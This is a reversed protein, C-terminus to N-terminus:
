CLADQMKVLLKEQPEQVAIKAEAIVTAAEDIKGSIAHSKPFKAKNKEYCQKLANNWVEARLLDGELAPLVVNHEFAIQLAYSYMQYPQLPRMKKDTAATTFPSASSLITEMSANEPEGWDVSYHQVSAYANSNKLSRLQATKNKVIALCSKMNERKSEWTSYLRREDVPFISNYFLDLLKYRHMQYQLAASYIMNLVRSASAYNEAQVHELVFKRELAHIRHMFVMQPQDNLKGIRNEITSSILEADRQKGPLSVKKNNVNVEPARSRGRQALGVGPLARAAVVGSVSM